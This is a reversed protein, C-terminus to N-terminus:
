KPKEASQSQLLGKSTDLYFVEKVERPEFGTKVLIRRPVKKDDFAKLINRKRWSLKVEILDALEKTLSCRANVKESELQKENGKEDFGDLPAIGPPQNAWGFECHNIERSKLDGQLLKRRNKDCFREAEKDIAALWDAFPIPAIGKGLDVQLRAAAEAKLRNIEIELQTTEHEIACEVRRKEVAALDLAELNEIKPPWVQYVPARHASQPALPLAKQKPAM